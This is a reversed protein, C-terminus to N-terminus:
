IVETRTDEPVAPGPIRSGRCCRSWPLCDSGWPKPKRCWEGSDIGSWRCWRWVQSRHLEWWEVCCQVLPICLRGDFSQREDGTKFMFSPQLVSVYESFELPVCLTMWHASSTTQPKQDGRSVWIKPFGHRHRSNPKQAPSFGALWLRRMVGVFHSIIIHSKGCASPNQHTEKPKNRSNKLASRRLKRHNHIIVSKLDNNKFCVRMCVTCRM